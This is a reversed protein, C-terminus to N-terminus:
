NSLGFKIWHSIVQKLKFHNLFFFIWDVHRALTYLPSDYIM